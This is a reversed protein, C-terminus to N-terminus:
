LWPDIYYMATTFHTHSVITLSRPDWIATDGHIRISCIGPTKTQVHVCISMIHLDYLYEMNRMLDWVVFRGESMVEFSYPDEEVKFALWFAEAILEVRPDDLMVATRGVGLM